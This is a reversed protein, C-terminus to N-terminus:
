PANQVPRGVVNVSALRLADRLLEKSISYPQESQSVPVGFWHPLPHECAFEIAKRHQTDRYPASRQVALWTEEFAALAELPNLIQVTGVSQWANVCGIEAFSVSSVPQPLQLHEQLVAFFPQERSARLAQLCKLAFSEVESPQGVSRAGFFGYGFFAEFAVETSQDLYDRVAANSPLSDTPFSWAREWAGAKAFQGSTPTSSFEATAILV